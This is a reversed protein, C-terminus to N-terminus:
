IGILTANERGTLYPDLTDGLSLIAQVPRTTVIRGRTPKGLGGVLRLLTSKGSGNAGILGVTEGARVRLSVDKLAWFDDRNRHELPHRVLDKLTAPRPGRRRFRKSVGQVGIVPERSVSAGPRQRPSAQLAVMGRGPVRPRGARRRAAPGTGALHGRDPDGAARRDPPGDPQPPVGVRVLRAGPARRLLGAHDLFGGDRAPRRDPPRGPRLGPAARSRARARRLLRAPDCALATPARVGAPARQDRRA